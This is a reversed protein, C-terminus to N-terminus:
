NKIPNGWFDIGTSKNNSEKMKFIQATKNDIKYKSADEIFNSRQDEAMKKDLFYGVVKFQKGNNVNALKELLENKYPWTADGYKHIQFVPTTYLQANDNEITNSDFYYAFYYLEDQGYNQSSLPLKVDPYQTFLSKRMELQLAKREAEAEEWLRKREARAEAEREAAERAARKRDANQQFINAVTIVSSAIVNSAENIYEQKQIALQRYQEARVERAKIEQSLKEQSEKYLAERRDNEQKRAIEANKQDEIVKRNYAATQQIDKWQDASYKSKDLLNENVIAKSIKGNQNVVVYGDNNNNYSNSKNTSNFNANSNATSSTSNYNISSNSNVNNQAGIQQQKKQAEIKQEEIKKEEAWKEEELKQEAARKEAAAQREAIRKEETVKIEAAKQEKELTIDTVKFIQITIDKICNIADMNYKDKWTEGNAKTCKGKYNSAMWNGEGALTQHPRFVQRNYCCGIDFTESSGDFDHVTFKITIALEHDTLNEITLGVFQGGFLREKSYEAAVRFRNEPYINYDIFRYRAEDRNNFGIQSFAINQILCFIVLYIIRNYFSM